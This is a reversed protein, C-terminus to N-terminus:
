KKKYGLRFKFGQNVVIKSAYIWIFQNITFGTVSGRAQKFYNPNDTGGGFLSVRLPTKSFRM